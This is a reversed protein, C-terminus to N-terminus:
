SHEANFKNKRFGCFFMVFIWVVMQRQQKPRYNKSEETPTIHIASEQEERFHVFYLVKLYQMNFTPSFVKLIRHNHIYGIFGAQTKLVSKM